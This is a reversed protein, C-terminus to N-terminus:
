ILIAAAKRRLSDEAKKGKKKVRLFLVDWLNHFSSCQMEGSVLRVLHWAIRSTRAEKM